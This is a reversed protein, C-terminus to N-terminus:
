LVIVIDLNDWRRTSDYEEFTIARIDYIPYDEFEEVFQKLLVEDDYLALVRYPNRMEVRSNLSNWFLDFLSLVILGGIAV